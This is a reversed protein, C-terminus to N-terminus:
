AAKLLNGQVNPAPKEDRASSPSARLESASAARQHRAAEVADAPVGIPDFTEYDDKFDDVAMDLLSVLGNIRTTEASLDAHAHDAFRFTDQLRLSYDLVRLLRRKLSDIEARQRQSHERESQLLAADGASVEQLMGLREAMLRLQAPHVDVIATFGESNEIPDELRLNGSPLREIKLAPIGETWTSTTM